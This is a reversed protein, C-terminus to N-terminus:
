RGGGYRDGRSWSEGGGRYGGFRPGGRSRMGGGGRGRSRGFEPGKDVWKDGDEFSYRKMEEGPEIRGVKFLDRFADKRDEALDESVPKYYLKPKAITSPFLDDLARFGTGSTPERRAATPSAPKREHDSRSSPYRPPPSERPVLAARDPHVGSPGTPPPRSSTAFLDGRSPPISDKRTPGSPPARAGVEQLVAETSGDRNEDYVVEWRKGVGRGGGLASSETEIWEKVKEDPIFDVWLPDRMAEEPWRVDHLRSRVRSAVSISSFSAFAHSKISDLFLETIVDADLPAGPPSGIKDLHSRLVGVQLPRKLNRIYISCTAPHLAPAIQRDEDQENGAAEMSPVPEQAILKKYQARAPPKSISESTRRALDPMSSVDNMLATEKAKDGGNVTEEVVMETDGNVHTAARQELAKKTEQIRAQVDEEAVSEDVKTPRPSGDLAKAKKFSVEASAPVPTVSRRKRKKQDESIEREASATIVPSEDTKSSPEEPAPQPQSQTQSALETSPKVAASELGSHSIVQATVPSEGVAQKQEESEVAPVPAAPASPATASIDENDNKEPTAETPKGQQTVADGADQASSDNQGDLELLKDIFQQKVRLGTLAAGRSKLEDKLEQVKLKSYDAM